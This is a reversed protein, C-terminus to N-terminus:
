ASGLPMQRLTEQHGYLLADVKENEGKWQIPQILEIRGRPITGLYVYFSDSVNRPIHRDMAEVVDAGVLREGMSTTAVMDALWTRWHFLKNRRPRVSLRCADDHFKILWGLPNDKTTLWVVPRGLTLLQDTNDGISPLLGHEAIGPLHKARTFHHLTSKSM